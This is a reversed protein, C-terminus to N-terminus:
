NRTGAGASGCVCLILGRRVALIVVPAGISGCVRKVPRHSAAGRRSRNIGVVYAV